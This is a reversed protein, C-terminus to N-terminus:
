RWPEAVVQPATFVPRFASDGNNWCLFGLFGVPLADELRGQLAIDGVKAEVDRDRIRLSLPLHLQGDAAPAPVAAAPRVTEAITPHASGHSVIACWLSGDARVEAQLACFAAPHRFGCALGVGGKGRFSLEAAFDIAAPRARQSSVYCGIEKRTGHQSPATLATAARRWDLPETAPEGDAFWTAMAAGGDAAPAAAAIAAQLRAQVEAAAEPAMRAAIATRELATRLWGKQEYGHAVALIKAAADRAAALATKALPDAKTQLAGVRAELAKRQEADDVAALAARAAALALAANEDQRATIAAEAAALERQVADAQALLPGIAHALACLLPAHRPLSRMAPAVISRPAASRTL